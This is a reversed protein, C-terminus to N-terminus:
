GIKIFQARRDDLLKIKKSRYDALFNKHTEIDADNFRMRIKKAPVGAVISYPEISKTVVSNSAIISGEGIEVGRMVTVAHGIWVDDGIITLPQTTPRGSLITPVGPKDFVHDDGIINVSDSLMCFNGLEVDKGIFTNQGIYVCDGAKFGSRTINVGKGTMFFSGIKYGAFRYKIKFVTYKIM